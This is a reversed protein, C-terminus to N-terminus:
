GGGGMLLYFSKLLWSDM